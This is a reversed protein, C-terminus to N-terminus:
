GTLRRLLRRTKRWKRPEEPPLTIRATTQGKLSKDTEMLTKLVALLHPKIEESIDFPRSPDPQPKERLSTRHILRPAAVHHGMGRILRMDMLNYEIPLVRLHLDREWLMRRLSPQDRKEGGDLVAAEWDQLFKLTKSSKRVGLVGSNIAPFGHPVPDGPTQLLAVVGARRNEHAGCIDCGRLVEFLDHVPALAIIDSDLYVTLDFRSRRLAEIKPRHTERALRHCRTFVADGPDEMGFFDIEAEPMFQRLTRASRRALTVHVEGTAAFVFGTSAEPSAPM